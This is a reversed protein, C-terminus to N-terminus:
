SPIREKKTEQVFIWLGVALLMVDRIVSGWLGKEAEPASSFCGCSIDLGRYISILLAATFTILLGNVILASGRVFQGTILLFGCVAELWPLFLAAANVLYVPLLQYNEIVRAFAQPDIIKDISAWIFIGGLFVRLTLYAWKKRDADLVEM